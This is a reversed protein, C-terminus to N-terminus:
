PNSGWSTYGEVTKLVAAISREALEGACFYPKSKLFFYIKSKKSFAAIKKSFKTGRIERHTM